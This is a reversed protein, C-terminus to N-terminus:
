GEDVTVLLVDDDDLLVPVDEAVLDEVLPLSSQAGLGPRVDTVETAEPTGLAPSVVAAGVPAVSATAAPEDRAVLATHVESLRAELPEPYLGQDELYRALRWPRGHRRILEAYADLDRALAAATPYRDEPSAEVARAVVARLEPPVRHAELRDLAPGERVIQWLVDAPRAGEFCPAGTLLEFLLVGVAYVDSAPGPAEGAITEPSLYAVHGRVLGKETAPRRSRALKVLDFGDLKLHGSRTLRIQSPHVGRHAAVTTHIADLVWSVESAIHVGLDIPLGTGAGQLLRLLAGLDTGDVHERVLATLGEHRVVDILQVVNPHDLANLASAVDLLAAEAGEAEPAGARVLDLRVLRTLGHARRDQAVWREFPATAGAERRIPLYRAGLDPGSPRGSDQLLHLFPSAAAVPIARWTDSSRSM